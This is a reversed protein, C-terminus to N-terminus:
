VKDNKPKYRNGNHLPSSHRQLDGDKTFSEIREEFHNSTDSLVEAAQGNEMKVM